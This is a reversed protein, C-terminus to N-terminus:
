TEPYQIIPEGTKNDIIEVPIDGTYFNPWTRPDIIERFLSDPGTGREAVDVVLSLSIIRRIDAARIRDTRFYYEVTRHVIDNRWRSVLADENRQWYFTEQIGNWKLVWRYRDMFDEFWNLLVNARENTQAWVDFQVVSEFWQGYVM